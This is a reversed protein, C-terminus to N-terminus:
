QYVGGEFSRGATVQAPRSSLAPSNGSLDAAPVIEGLFAASAAEKELIYRVRAILEAAPKGSMFRRDFSCMLDFGKLVKPQGNVAFVRDRVQGMGFQLASSQPLGHWDVGLHGVSTFSYSGRTDARLKPFYAGVWLLLKQLVGPLRYFMLVEKLRKEDKGSSQEKLEATIANLSKTQPTTIRGPLVIEQGEVVAAKSFGCSVEEFVHIKKFGLFNKLYGNLTPEAGKMEAIAQATAKIVFATYSPAPRGAARLRLRATEIEGANIENVMMVGWASATERRWLEVARHYGDYALNQDAM